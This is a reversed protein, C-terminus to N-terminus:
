SFTEEHNVKCSRKYSFFYGLLIYHIPFLYRSHVIPSLAIIFVFTTIFLLVDGNKRNLLVNYNLLVKLVVPIFGLFLIAFPLEKLYYLNLKATKYFEFGVKVNDFFYQFVKPIAFILSGIGSEKNLSYIVSTFGLNIQSDVFLYDQDRFIFNQVILFLIVYILTIAYTKKVHFGGLFCLMLLCGYHVRVVSLILICMGMWVWRKKCFYYFSGFVLFLSIPEKNMMQSYYIVAPNLFFFAPHIKFGFIEIFIKDLFRFAGLYVCSNFLYSIYVISVENIELSFVKILLFYIFPLGNDNIGTGWRFSYNTGFLMAILNPYYAKAHDLALPYFCHSVPLFRSYWGLWDLGFANLYLYSLIFYLGISIILSLSNMRLKM